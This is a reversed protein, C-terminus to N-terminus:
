MPDPGQDGDEDDESPQQYWPPPPTTLRRRKRNQSSSSAPFNISLPDPSTSPSPRPNPGPQDPEPPWASTSTSPPPTSFSPGPNSSPDGGEGGEALPQTRPPSPSTLNHTQNVRHQNPQQSSEQSEGPDGDTATSFSFIPNWQDGSVRLTEEVLDDYHWDLPSYNAALNNLVYLALSVTNDDPRGHNEWPISRWEVTANDNAADRIEHGTPNSNHNQQTQQGRGLRARARTQRTEAVDWDQEGQKDPTDFPDSPRVRFVVLERDTIIYGYRVNCGICYSLLQRVPWLWVATSKGVIQGSRDTNEELDKSEWNRSFKTDGPLINIDDVSSHSAWDPICEPKYMVTAASGREMWIHKQLLRQSSKDLAEQVVRHITKALLDGLLEENKIRCASPHQYSFDRLDDYQTNLEELMRPAFIRQITPWDFEKWVLLKSPNAYDGTTASKSRSKSNMKAQISTPRPNEPTPNVRDTLQVVPNAQTLYDVLRMKDSVTTYHYEIAELRSIQSIM